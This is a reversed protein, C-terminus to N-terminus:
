MVRRALAKVDGDNEGIINISDPFTAGASKGLNLGEGAPDESPTRKVFGKKRDPMHTVFRLSDEDVVFKGDHEELELVVM